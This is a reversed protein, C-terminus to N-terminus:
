LFPTCTDNNDEEKWSEDESQDLQKFITELDEKSFKFFSPDVDVDKATNPNYFRPDVVEGDRSLVMDYKGTGYQLSLSYADDDIKDYVEIVSAKKEVTNRSPKELFKTIIVDNDVDEVQMFGNDFVSKKDVDYFENARYSDGWANIAKYVFYDGSKQESILPVGYKDKVKQFLGKNIFSYNGAKRMETKKANIVDSLKPALKGEIGAQAVANKYAQMEEETLLDERKEWTYVIYDSVAERSNVSQTMVPPIINEAVAEKVNANLYAMSPNYKMRGSAKEQIWTARRYPVVDDNSWNNRQFVGINYFDDLNPISELKSLTKNYIKEFDEYPIVSTFSIPSNSLGSQLVALTV